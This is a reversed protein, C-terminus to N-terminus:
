PVILGLSDINEMAGVQEVLGVVDDGFAEGFVGEAAM